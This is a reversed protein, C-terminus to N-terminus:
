VSLIEKAFAKAEKLTAVARPGRAGKHDLLFRGRTTLATHGARAEVVLLAGVDPDYLLTGVPFKDEDAMVWDKFTPLRRIEAEAEAECSLQAANAMANTFTSILDQFIPHVCENTM